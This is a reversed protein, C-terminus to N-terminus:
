QRVLPLYGSSHGTRNPHYSEGTPNSLGNLWETSSCVAHGTFASTPNKFTFGYAAARGSLVSNLLDATQNLMVMDDSDFWTGGNCDVGMFLRPYGLVVVRASPSRSKIQSYVNNLQGPLTNSIYSKASNVRTDCVSAWEPKACETIVSSFGADNGGVTITVIGTAANLQSVQDNLVDGTKAGSCAAFVLQTNARQQSLLYPYSYVSRQCGSDFYTRTGTGSSYSDGLAVYREAAASATFVLSLVVAALAARPTANRM